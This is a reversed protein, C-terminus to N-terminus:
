RYMICGHTFHDFIYVVIVSIELGSGIPKTYTKYTKHVKKHFVLVGRVIGSKRTNMRRAVLVNPILEATLLELLIIINLRAVP